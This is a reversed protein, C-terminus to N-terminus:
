VENFPFFGLVRRPCNTLFFTNALMDLLNSDTLFCVNTGYKERAVKNSGHHLFAANATSLLAVSASFLM